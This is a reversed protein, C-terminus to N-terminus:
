GGQAILGLDHAFGPLFAGSSLVVLSGFRYGSSRVKLGLICVGAIRGSVM